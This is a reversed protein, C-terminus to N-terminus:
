RTTDDSGTEDDDTAADTSQAPATKNIVRSIAQRDFRLEVGPAAEITVSETDTAVVKGYLGGITRVEDGAGLASQLEM